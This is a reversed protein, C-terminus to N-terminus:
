FRAELYNIKKGLGSWKIEYGTKINNISSKHVHFDRTVNSLKINNEEMHEVTWEFLKDNDTKFKLVGNKTLINKYINLFEMHTLRRKAHRAKPWPDSFTLWLTNVKGKLMDPIDSIDEVMIKFNKLELEEAKKMARHAVTACKEIGIYQTNPNAKALQTIMEGKGMGLEIITNEDVVYSKNKILYISNELETMANPNNRIRM